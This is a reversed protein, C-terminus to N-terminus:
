AGGEPAANANRVSTSASHFCSPVFDWTAGRLGRIVTRSSLRRVHM